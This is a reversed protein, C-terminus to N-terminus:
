FTIVNKRTKSYTMQTKVIHTMNMNFEFSFHGFKFLNSVYSCRVHHLLL